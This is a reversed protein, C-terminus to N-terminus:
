VKINSHCVKRKSLILIELIDLSYLIDLLTLCQTMTHIRTQANEQIANSNGSRRCHQDSM